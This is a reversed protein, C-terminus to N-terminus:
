RPKQPGNARRCRASILDMLDEHRRRTLALDFSEAAKLEEEEGGLDLVPDRVVVITEGDIEAEIEWHLWDIRSMLQWSQRTDLHHRAGWIETMTGRAITKWKAYKTALYDREAKWKAYKTALCDREAKWQRAHAWAKSNESPTGTPGTDGADIQAHLADREAKWKRALTWAKSVEDSTNPSGAAIQAHLADREAKWKRAKTWATSAGSRAAPDNSPIMDTNSQQPATSSRTQPMILHKQGRPWMTKLKGCRGM